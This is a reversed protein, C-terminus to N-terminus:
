VVDEVECYEHPGTSHSSVSSTRVDKFFYQVHSQKLFQVNKGQKVRNTYREPASGSKNKLASPRNIRSQFNHDATQQFKPPSSPRNESQCTTNKAEEPRNSPASVERNPGKSTERGKLHRVYRVYDSTAEGLEWPSPPPLSLWEVPPATDDCPSLILVPQRRTEEACHEISQPLLGYSVYSFPM